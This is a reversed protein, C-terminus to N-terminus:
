PSTNWGTKKKIRKTALRKGMVYLTDGGDTYIPDYLSMPNQIADLAYTIEEKPIGIETAIEEITPEKLNQRTLAEKTYIAKYATDKLSRSVRLSSNDRLFRRIEGAIMPVAYTSFKVNLSSDFNDIAKILGICGIQFLDDVNENSSSFRKIVSLVLRLNGEIYTERAKNDGAAIQEFLIRKEEAKLLPLRATNVGCIEVKGQM